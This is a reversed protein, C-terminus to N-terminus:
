PPVPEAAAAIREITEVQRRTFPVPGALLAPDAAAEPVLREVITRLLAEIGQGTAASTVVAGPPITAIQLDAKSVVVLDTAGVRSSSGPAADAPLVRLVLDAHRAAAEARAIGERETASETEGARREGATDVLDVAWGDLVATAILVDRTTGPTPSVISRAHGLVANMLSSKGANVEGALVVRWPETLRLGVRSATILRGAMRRAALADGRTVVATLEEIARDMLGSVQRSLIMAARPATAAPLAEIAERQCPGGEAWDQWRGQVAGGAVLAALVAAPAATGGHGHVEVRDAAQRVVVVEEGTSRWTGFVIAGDPQAALPPAARPAFQAGVLDVAGPGTVGVVALAGRGSPTLLMARVPQVSVTERSSIPTVRM